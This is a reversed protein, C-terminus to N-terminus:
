TPQPAARLWIRCPTSKDVLTWLCDQAFHIVQSQRYQWFRPQPAGEIHRRSVPMDLCFAALCQHKSLKLRLSPPSATDRSLRIFVQALNRGFALQVPRFSRPIADDSLSDAQCSPHRFCAKAPFWWLGTRDFPLCNRGLPYRPLSRFPSRGMGVAALTFRVGSAPALAPSSVRCLCGDGSPHRRALCRVGLAATVACCIVHRRCRLIPLAWADTLTPGAAISAGNAKDQACAFSGGGFRTAPWCGWRTGAHDV